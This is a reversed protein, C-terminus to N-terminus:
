EPPRQKRCVAAASDGRCDRCGAAAQGQLVIADAVLRKFARQLKRLRLLMLPPEQSATQPAPPRVQAMLTDCGTAWARAQIECAHMDDECTVRYAILVDLVAATDRVCLPLLRAIRRTTATNM